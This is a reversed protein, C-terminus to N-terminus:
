LKRNFVLAAVASAILELLVICTLTAFRWDREVVYEVTSVVVRAVPTSLLVVIGANLLFTAVPGGGGGLSLLLGVTLCVSSAIVGGRLVIGVLREMRPSTGATASKASM